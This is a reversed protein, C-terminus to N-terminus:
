MTLLVTQSPIDLQEAEEAESKDDDSTGQSESEIGGMPENDVATNADKYNQLTALYEGVYEMPDYSHPVLPVGPPCFPPAGYLGIDNDSVYGSEQSPTGSVYGSEQSSTDSM